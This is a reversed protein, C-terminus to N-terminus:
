SSKKKQKIEKDRPYIGFRSDNKFIGTSLEEATNEFDPDGMHLYLWKGLVPHQIINKFQAQLSEHHERRTPLLIGNWLDFACTKGRYERHDKKEMLVMVMKDHVYAALGGFMSKTFFSPDDMFPEFAWQLSFKKKPM